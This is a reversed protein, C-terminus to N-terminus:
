GEDNLGRIKLDKKNSRYIRVDVVVSWILGLFAGAISIYGGVAIESSFIKILAEFFTLEFLKMDFLALLISLFMLLLFFSLTVMINKGWKTNGKHKWYIDTKIWYFFWCGTITPKISIFNFISL